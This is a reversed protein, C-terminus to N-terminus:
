VGHEVAEKAEKLGCGTLERYVRIAEIKNGHRVLDRVQDFEDSPNEIGLFEIILDLKREILALRPDPRSGFM